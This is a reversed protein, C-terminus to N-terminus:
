MTPHLSYGAARSGSQAWGQKWGPALQIVLLQSLCMVSEGLLDCYSTLKPHNALWVVMHCSHFGLHAIDLPTRINSSSNHSLVRGMVDCQPIMPVQGALPVQHAGAGM